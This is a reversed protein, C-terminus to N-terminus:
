GNEPLKQLIIWIAIAKTVTNRTLPKRTGFTYLGDETVRAFTGEYSPPKRSCFMVQTLKRLKALIEEDNM